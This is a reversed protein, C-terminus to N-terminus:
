PSAFFPWENEPQRATREVGDGFKTNSAEIGGTYFSVMTDIIDEKPVRGGCSNHRDLGREVALYSPKDLDCTKTVDVIQADLALIELLDHLEGGHLWDHKGDQRDWGLVGYRILAEYSESQEPSMDFTSASNYSKKVDDLGITMNTIEPRGIRDLQQKEGNGDDAYTEAAVAILRADEGFVGSIDLEVAITLVNFVDSFNRMPPLGAAKAMPIRIEDSLARPLKSPVNPDIVGKMLEGAWLVDLIFSDARQGAFSNHIAPPSEVGNITVYCNSNNGVPKCSVQANFGDQIIPVRLRSDVTVPNANGQAASVVIESPEKTVVKRLQFVYEVSGNFEPAPKSNAPHLFSNLGLILRKDKSIWSYLDSLDAHKPIDTQKVGGIFDIHDSGISISPLTFVAAILLRYFRM